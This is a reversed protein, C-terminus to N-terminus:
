REQIWLQRTFIEFVFNNVCITTVALMILLYVTSANISEM